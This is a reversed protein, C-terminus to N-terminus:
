GKAAFERWGFRCTEIRAVFACISYKGNRDRGANV